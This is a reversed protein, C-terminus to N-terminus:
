SIVGVIINKTSAPVSTKNSCIVQYDAKVPLLTDILSNNRNTECRAVYQSTGYLNGRKNCTMLVDCKCDLKTTNNALLTARAYYYRDTYPIYVYNCDPYKGAVTFTPNIVDMLVFDVTLTTDNIQTISKEAVNNQSTNTYLRVTM